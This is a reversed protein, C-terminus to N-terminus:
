PKKRTVRGYLGKHEAFLRLTGNELKFKGLSVSASINLM